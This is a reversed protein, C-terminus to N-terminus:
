IKKYVPNFHRDLILSGVDHLLGAVYAINPDFGETGSKESITRTVMAVALSHHWFAPGDILPSAPPFMRQVQMALCFKGIQDFGLRVIAQQVSGIEGYRGSFFVSNVMKLLKATLYVDKEVIRALAAADSRHDGILRQIELFAGGAPPLDELERVRQVIRDRIGAM